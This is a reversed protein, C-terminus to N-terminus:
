DKNPVLVKLSGPSVSIRLERATEATDDRLFSEDQDMHIIMEKVKWHKLVASDTQFLMSGTIKLLSTFDAKDLAIVDLWGDTISIGPLFAYGKRGINGVNTVTLAVAEQIFQKGDITMRFAKAEQQMTKFATIGYAFQGWTEKMEPSAETVMDALIGLNVRILFPCGNVMGMDIQQIVPETSLILRIAEEINLPLNLEKAVVNATGGPLIAIPTNSGHLARAVEMVTGDGGYVALLDTKGSLAEAITFAEGEMKTVHVQWEIDTEGIHKNLISLIPEKTESAPNIIIDIKRM